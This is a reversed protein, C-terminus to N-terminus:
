SIILSRTPLELQLEPVRGELQYRGAPLTAIDHRLIVFLDVSEGPRLSYSRGGLGLLVTTDGEVPRGNAALVRTWVLYPGAAHWWEGSENTLRAVLDPIVGGSRVRIPGGSWTVTLGVRSVSGEVCFM